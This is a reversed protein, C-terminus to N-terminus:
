LEAKILTMGKDYWQKIEIKGNNQYRRVKYTSQIYFTHVNYTLDRQIYM